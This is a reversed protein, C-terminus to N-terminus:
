RRILDDYKRALGKKGEDNLSGFESLAREFLYTLVYSSEFDKLSRGNMKYEEKM